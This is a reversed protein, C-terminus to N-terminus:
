YRTMMPHSRRSRLTAVGAGVDLIEGEGYRAFVGSEAIQPSGVTPRERLAQLDLPSWTRWGPLASPESEPPEMIPEPRKRAEPIPPIRYDVGGSSIGTVNLMGVTEAHVAERVAEDFNEPIERVLVERTKSGTSPGVIGLHELLDIYRGGMAFNVTMKRQILSASALQDEVVLRAAEKVKAPVAKRGKFERHRRTMGAAQSRRRALDSSLRGVEGAAVAERVLDGFNEPIETVLVANPPTGDIIGMHELLDMLRHSKAFGLELRNQLMSQSALQNRITLEAAEGLAEVMSEPDDGRPPRPPRKDMPYVLRGERDLNAAIRKPGEAIREELLKVIVSEGELRELALEPKGVVLNRGAQQSVPQRAARSARPRGGPPVPEATMGIVQKSINRIPDAKIGLFWEVPDFTGTVAETGTRQRVEASSWIAPRPSVLGHAELQLLVLEAQEETLTRPIDLAAAEEIIFERTVTPHKIKYPLGEKTFFRPHVALREGIAKTVPHLELLRDVDNQAQQMIQGAVGVGPETKPTPPPAAMPAAHHRDAPPMERIQERTLSKPDPHRNTMKIVHRRAKPIDVGRKVPYEASRVAADGYKNTILELYNDPQQVYQYGRKSAGGWAAIEGRRFVETNGGGLPRGFEFDAARETRTDSPIHSTVAGPDRALDGHILVEDDALPVKKRRTSWNWRSTKTFWEPRRVSTPGHALGDRWTREGPAIPTEVIVGSEAAVDARSNALAVDRKARATRDGLADGIKYEGTSKREVMAALEGRVKTLYKLLNSARSQTEGWRVVDWQEILTGDLDPIHRAIRPAQERLVATFVDELRAGPNVARLTGMMVGTALGISSQVSHLENVAASVATAAEDFKQQMEPTRVTLDKLKETIDAIEDVVGQETAKRYIEAIRKWRPPLSNIFEKQSKPEGRRYPGLRGKEDVRRTIRRIFDDVTMGEPLRGVQQVYNVWDDMRRSFVRYAQELDYFREASFILGEDALAREFTRMHVDQGIARIYTDERKSLQQLYLSKDADLLGLEHAYYDMQQRETWGFRNVPDTWGRARAVGTLSQEMLTGDPLQHEVVQETARQLRIELFDADNLEKLAREVIDDLSVDLAQAIEPFGTGAPLADLDVGKGEAVQGLIEGVKHTLQRKYLSPDVRLLVDMMDVDEPILRKGDPGIGGFKVTRGGQVVGSLDDVLTKPAFDIGLRPGRVAETVATLLEDPEAPLVRIGEGELSRPQSRAVSKMVPDDFRRPPGEGSTRKWPESAAETPHLGRSIQEEASPEARPIQARRLREGPLAAEDLFPGHLARERAFRGKVRGEFFEAGPVPTPVWPEQGVGDEIARSQYWAAEDNAGKAFLKPNLSKGDKGKATFVKHGEKTVIGATYEGSMAETRLIARVEESQSGFLRILYGRRADMTADWKRKLDILHWLDQPTDVPIEYGAAALDAAWIRVGELHNVGAAGLTDMRDRAVNGTMELLAGELTDTQMGTLQGLAYEDKRRVFGGENSTASRYWRQLARTSDAAFNGQVSGAKRIADTGTLGLRVDAKFSPSEPDAARLIKNSLQTFDDVFLNATAKGVASIALRGMAYGPAAMVNLMVRPLVPKTTIWGPLFPYELPVRGARAIDSALGRAMKESVSASVPVQKTVTEDASKWIKQVSKIVDDRWSQQIGEAILDDLDDADVAKNVAAALEERFKPPTQKALRSALRNPALRRGVGGLLPGTGLQRWRLGVDDLGFHKLVERGGETKNMKKIGTSINKGRTSMVQAGEAAATMAEDGFRALMKPNSAFATLAKSLKAAGGGARSWFVPMGGLLIFPDTMIDGALATAYRLMKKGGIGPVWDPLAVNEIGGLYDQQYEGFGYHRSVQEKWDSTSYGKGTAFDTLEKITSMVAARPKDLWALTSLIAGPLGAGSDGRDTLFPQLPRIGASPTVASPVLSAARAPTPLPSSTGLQKNIAALMDELSPTAM